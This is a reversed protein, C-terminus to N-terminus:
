LMPFIDNDTSECKIFTIETIYDNIDTFSSSLYEIPAPINDATNVTSILEWCPNVFM